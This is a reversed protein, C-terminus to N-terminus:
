EYIDIDDLDAILIGIKYTADDMNYEMSYRPIVEYGSYNNEYIIINEDEDIDNYENQIDIFSSAEDAINDVDENDLYYLINEKFKDYAYEYDFYKYDLNKNKYEEKMDFINIGSSIDFVDLRNRNFEGEPTNEIINYDKFIVINVDYPLNLEYLRNLEGNLQISNDFGIIASCKKGDYETDCLNYKTEINVRYDKESPNLLIQEDNDQTLLNKDIVKKLLEKQEDTLSSVFQKLENINKDIM